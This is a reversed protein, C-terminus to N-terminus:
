GACGHEAWQLARREIAYEPAPREVMRRDEDAEFHHRPQERRVVEIRTAAIWQFRDEVLADVERAQRARRDLQEDGRGVDAGSAAPDKAVGLNGGVDQKRRGAQWREELRDLDVTVGVPVAPVRAIGGHGRENTLAVGAIGDQHLDIGAFPGTRWPRRALDEAAQVFHGEVG